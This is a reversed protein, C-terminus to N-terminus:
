PINKSKTKATATDLIMFIIQPRQSYRAVVKEADDGTRLASRRRARAWRWM